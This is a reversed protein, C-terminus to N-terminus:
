SNFALREFANLLSNLMGGGLHFFLGNLLLFGLLFPMASQRLAYYRVVHRQPVLRELIASGDLPPLPLLNFVALLVNVLGFLGFIEAVNLSLASSAIISGSPSDYAAGSLRCLVVALMAFILNLGPGALSVLLAHNRPKRLRGINVPVPKAYGFVPLGAVILLLPLLLTGFPDIHRLPNISLRGAQKATPDGFFNAVYGHAAEHCTVAIM